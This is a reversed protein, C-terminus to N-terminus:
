WTGKRPRLPDTTSGAVAARFEDAIRVIEAMREAAPRAVDGHVLDIRCLDSNARSTVQHPSVPM